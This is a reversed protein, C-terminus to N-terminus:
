DLLAYTLDIGVPSGAGTTCTLGQSNLTQFLFDTACGRSQVWGSNAGVQKTSTIAVEAGSGKTNLTVDTPDAGGSHALIGLVVIRKGPVAPLIVADTSGAAVNAFASQILVKGGKADYQIGIRDTM